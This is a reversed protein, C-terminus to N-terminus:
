RIEVPLPVPQKTVKSVPTQVDAQKMWAILKARLKQATKKESSLLNHEEGIDTALDYLEWRPDVGEGDAIGDGYFYILKYDGDRIATFPEIGLGVGVKQYWQHPYHWFLGSERELSKGSLLPMLDQGDLQDAPVPNKVGAIALITPFFDDAHVPVDSTTGPTISLLRRIPENRPTQGAWAVIMPVRTGGEYASGKGGKLPSNHYDRVFNAKQGNALTMEGLRSRSHNSLGGNDSMFLVITNEAISDSNDGDGNPDHLTELLAGLSADMAELMSAYDREVTPRGDKYHKLYKEPAPAIKTHVAYHAMNMFFPVKDFAAKTIIGQAKATIAETLYEGEPRDELNPYMDRYTSLWPSYWGGWPGGGHSGGINIDFGLTTPDQGATNAAGFHAKGIHITRYGQERLISPLTRNGDDPQMGKSKWAPSSLYQNQSNGHGVWDSVHSRGPNKGTMLSTRTPSCVPHAAYANTFKMGQAALREMHPTRYLDNWLTRETHLPLSTDQWGMDDVLFLIINPREQAETTAVGYWAIVVLALTVFFSPLFFNARFVARQSDVM